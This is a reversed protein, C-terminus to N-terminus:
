SSKEKIYRLKDLGYGKIFQWDEVVLEDAFPMVHIVDADNVLIDLCGGTESEVRRAASSISESSTVDLIITTIGLPSLSPDIESATRGSAIVQHGRTHFSRALASGIGGPSCGTFISKATNQIDIPFAFPPPHQHDFSPLHPEHTSTAPGSALADASILDGNFVILQSVIIFLFCLTNIPESHYPLYLSLPLLCCGLLYIRSM